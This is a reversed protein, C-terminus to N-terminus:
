NKSYLIDLKKADEKLELLKSMLEAFKEHQDLTEYLTNIEKKIDEMLKNNWNIVRYIIQKLNEKCIDKEDLADVVYLYKEDTKIIYDHGWFYDIITKSEAEELKFGELVEVIKQLETVETIETIEKM